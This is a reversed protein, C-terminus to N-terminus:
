KSFKLHSGRVEYPANALYKNIGEHQEANYEDDFECDMFNVMQEVADNVYEAFALFNSDATLIYQALPQVLAHIGPSYKSEVCEKFIEKGYKEILEVSSKGNVIIETLLTNLLYEGEWPITPTMSSVVEPSFKFCLEVPFPSNFM